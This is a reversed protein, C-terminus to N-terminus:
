APTPGTRIRYEGDDLLAKARTGSDEDNDLWTQLYEVCVRVAEEETNRIFSALFGTAEGTHYIVALIM